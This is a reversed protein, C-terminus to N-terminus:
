TAVDFTRRKTSGRRGVAVSQRRLGDSKNHQSATLAARVSAPLPKDGMSQEDKHKAFIGGGGTNNNPKYNGNDFSRRGAKGGKNVLGPALGAAMAFASDKGFKKKIQTRLEEDLPEAYEASDDGGSLDQEPNVMVGNVAVSARRRTRAIQANHKAVEKGKRRAMTGTQKLVSQARDSILGGFKEDPVYGVDQEPLKNGLGFNKQLVAEKMEKNIHLEIFESVPIYLRGKSVEIRRESYYAWFTLGLVKTQIVEQMRFANFLLAPHTRSFERFDEINVDGDLAEMAELEREVLRAQPNRKFEKGYLDHLMDTVEEATISGSTDKDYLDFAFMTLSARTLTCYNWLSLVFEKFDILGSNDEDFISFIRKTFRTKELDLFALLEALEIQGSSDNDIQRYIKHLRGIDIEKFSLGEFLNRHESVGMRDYVHLLQSPGCGM